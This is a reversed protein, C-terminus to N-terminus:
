RRGRLFGATTIGAEAALDVALSPPASVAAVPPIGALVRRRREALQEGDAIGWARPWRLREGAQLV